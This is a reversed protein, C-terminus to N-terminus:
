KKVCLHGVLLYICKWLDNYNINKFITRYSIKLMILTKGFYNWVFDFTNRIKLLIKKFIKINMVNSDINNYWLRINLIKNQLLRIVWLTIVCTKYCVILNVTNLQTVGM